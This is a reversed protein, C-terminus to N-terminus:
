GQFAHVPAVRLTMEAAGRSGRDTTEPFSSKDMTSSLSGASSWPADASWVPRDSPWPASAFASAARALFAEVASREYVTEEAAAGLGASVKVSGDSLVDARVTRTAGDKEVIATVINKGEDRIRLTSDLAGAKYREIVAVTAGGERSLTLIIREDGADYVKSVSGGGVPNEGTWFEVLNFIVFDLLAAVGYVPIIVFLWTVASRLYKDGVSRNIDYVKRTLEFRGFCGAAFWGVSTLLCLAVVKAFRGKRMADEKRWPFFLTTGAM